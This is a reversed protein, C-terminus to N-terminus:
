IPNTHYRKKYKERVNEVRKFREKKEQQKRNDTYTKQIYEADKKLSKDSGNGNQIQKFMVNDKVMQSIPSDMDKCNSLIDSRTTRGFKPTGGKVSGFISRYKELDFNSM